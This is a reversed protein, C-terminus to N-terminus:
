LSKSRTRMVCDRAILVPALLIVPLLAWSSPAERVEPILLLLGTLASIVVGVLLQSKRVEREAEKNLQVPSSRPSVVSYGVGICFLCSFSFSTVQPPVAFLGSADVLVMGALLTALIGAITKWFNTESM